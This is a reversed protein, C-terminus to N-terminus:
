DDLATFGKEKPVWLQQSNSLWVLLELSVFLRGERILETGAMLEVKQPSGGDTM